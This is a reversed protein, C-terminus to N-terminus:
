RNRSAARTQVRQAGQAIQAQTQPTYRNPLVFTTTNNVVPRENAGSASMRVGLTGDPGRHLPLIGEPGAEGMVGMRGGSMGFPTARNVVGGRAFPIVNGSNFAGGKAWGGAFLSLLGGLGSEAGGTSGTGGFSGFLQQIAKDAVFRLATAFLDDAFDGFAEKASKAGSAFDTFADSLGEKFDDLFYTAERQKQLLETNEIISQGFESNAAVGAAKLNNYLEQQDRSMKLLEIEELIAGNVEQYPTLQAEIEETTRKLQEAYIERARIADDTTIENKAELRGIETVNKQYERQAAALPGQLQAAMDDIQESWSLQSEEARQQAEALAETDLIRKRLAAANEAASRGSGGASVRPAAPEPAITPTFSRPRINVTRGRRGGTSAGGNDAQQAAGSSFASKALDRFGAVGQERGAQIRGWDLNIIGKAVQEYGILIDIGASIQANLRNFATLAVGTAGAVFDLIGGLGQLLSKVNEGTGITKVMAATFNGFAAALDSVAQKIQPDNLATNLSEIADRAAVAGGGSGDGELLNNFSNELAQLAGGLTNRAAVAAGGMQTELEKLIITQAEAQRGTEVLQKITDKQSQSFQVGARSLATIGAVPDNLAKGVQLAASNLDTGMATSLDLVAETAKPFVDRGIKTFTLLLAQAGGIAEDDFSTKFQLSAAMKNLEGITLGAAAGTSKIRATLQAQVKEAEITNQFYKRMALAAVTAGAAIGVGLVKGLSKARTEAKGAAKEMQTLDRTAEKVGTTTVKIGLSAIDAM